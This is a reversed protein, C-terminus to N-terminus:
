RSLITTILTDTTLLEPGTIGDQRARTILAQPCLELMLTDEPFYTHRKEVPVDLKVLSYSLDFSDNKLNRQSIRYFQIMDRLNFNRNLLLTELILRFQKEAETAERLKGLQSRFIETSAKAVRFESALSLQFAKRSSRYVKNILDPSTATEAATLLTELSKKWQRTGVIPVDASDVFSCAQVTREELTTKKRFM